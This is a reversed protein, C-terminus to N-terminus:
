GDKQDGLGSGSLYPLSRYRAENKHSWWTFYIRGLRLLPVKRTREATRLLTYSKLKLKGGPLKLKLYVM